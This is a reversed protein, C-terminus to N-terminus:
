RMHLSADYLPSKKAEALALSILRELSRRASKELGERAFTGNEFLETFPEIFEDVFADFLEPVFDKVDDECPKDKRVKKYVEEIRAPSLHLREGEVVIGKKQVLLYTVPLTFGLYKNCFYVDSFIVQPLKKAKRRGFPNNGRGPGSSVGLAKELPEERSLFKACGEALRQHAWAPFSFGHEFSTRVAELAALRDGKFDMIRLNLMKCASAMLLDLNAGAPPPWDVPWSGAMQCIGILDDLTWM